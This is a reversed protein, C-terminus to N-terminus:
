RLLLVRLAFVVVASLTLFPLFSVALLERLRNTAAFYFGVVGVLFVWGASVVLIGPWGVVLGVCLYARGDLARWPVPTAAALTGAGSTRAPPAGRAFASPAQSLVGLLFGAGGAAFGHLLQEPTSALLMLAWAYAICAFSLWADPLTDHLCEYISLVTLLALLSLWIALQPTMM